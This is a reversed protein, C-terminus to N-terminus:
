PGTASSAVPRPFVTAGERVALRRQPVQHRRGLRRAPPGRRRDTEDADGILFPTVGKDFATSLDFGAAAMLWPVGFAYIVVNGLVMTGATKLPTRDGGRGALAGVLAGAFVFGVIYGASAGSLGATGNQFWPVGVAGVLLYTLM